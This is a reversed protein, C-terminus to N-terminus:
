GFGGVAAVVGFAESVGGLDEGAGAAVEEEFALDVFVACSSDDEVSGAALGGRGSALLEQGFVEEVVLEDFGFVDVFWGRGGVLDLM